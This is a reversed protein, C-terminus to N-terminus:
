SNYYLNSFNVLGNHVRMQNTYFETSNSVYNFCLSFKSYNMEVDSQLIAVNNQYLEEFNSRMEYEAEYDM